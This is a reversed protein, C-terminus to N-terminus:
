GFEGFLLVRMIGDGIGLADKWLYGSSYCEGLGFGEKLCGGVNYM